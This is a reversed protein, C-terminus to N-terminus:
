MLILLVSKLDKRFVFSYVIFTFPYCDIQNNVVLGALPFTSSRCPVAVNCYSVPHIIVFVSMLLRDYLM